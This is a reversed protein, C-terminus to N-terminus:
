QVRTSLGAMRGALMGSAWAWHLNFGGCAGDVDLAEGAAFLGPLARSELAADSFQRVDLGGRTVQCQKADAMGRVEVSFGALASALASVDSKRMRAAPDLGGEKLVCRAVQPLLMGSLFDLFAPHWKGAGGHAAALEDWRADLFLPLQAPGLSPVFDFVVRDGPRAHRSLNFVAIGSLGYDRFLVEGQERVKEKGDPAVLSVAGHVRINNLGKIPATDTRLPGLVPHQEVFGCAKPALGRGARGGCALVVADAHVPAGEALEIRFGGGARGAASPANGPRRNECPRVSVVRRGCWEEVGHAALAGRLVDVVTSAKNTLPYMRGDEERWLLGLRMLYDAVFHPREENAAFDHQQAYASQSAALVNAVFRANRYDGEEPHANSFNCRGNGTALITKGVRDNAEFLLVDAGARAAELAAVLGSAGAGVIAVTGM